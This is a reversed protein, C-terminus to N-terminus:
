CAAAGASAGPIGYWFVNINAIACATTIAELAMANVPEVSGAKVLWGASATKLLGGILIPCANGADDCAAVKAIMPGFMGVAVTQGRASAGNDQTVGIPVPNCAGTASKVYGAVSAASVCYYQKDDLAEDAFWGDYVLGINGTTAM